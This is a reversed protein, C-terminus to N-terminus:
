KSFPFIVATEAELGFGIDGFTDIFNRASGFTSFSKVFKTRKTTKVVKRVKSVGAVLGTSTKIVFYQRAM